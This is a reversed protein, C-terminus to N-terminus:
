ADNPAARPTVIQGDKTDRVDWGRAQLADRLEDSKRWDKEMRARARDEAMQVIEDSPKSQSAELALVNNVGEWWKLWALARASDVGADLERNSERIKEFLHGLAASINLDDDLAAGFGDDDIAIPRHAQLNGARASDWLRRLWEDIRALAQRSEELGEWTFNLPARYHVRLLAYRIERGSYGKAFLDPLTFFNGLSKSMKQGEVLLHACHLWYRV